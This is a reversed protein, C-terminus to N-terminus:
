ETVPRDKLLGNMAHSLDISFGDLSVGFAGIIKPFVLMRVSFQKIFPRVNASNDFQALAATISATLTLTCKNISLAALSFRAAPQQAKM